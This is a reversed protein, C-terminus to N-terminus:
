YEGVKLRPNAVAVALSGHRAVAWQEWEQRRATAAERARLLHPINASSWVGAGARRGGEELRERMYSICDEDRSYDPLGDDVVEKKKVVEEAVDEAEITEIDEENSLFTLYEAVASSWERDEEAALRRKDARQVQSLKGLVHGPGPSPTAPGLLRQFEAVVLSRLSSRTSTSAGRRAGAVQWRDRAAARARRLLEVRARSWFLRPNTSVLRPRPGHKTRPTHGRSVHRVRRWWRGVRAFTLTDEERRRPVTRWQRTDPSQEPGPALQLKTWVECLDAQWMVEDWNHQEGSPCLFQSLSVFQRASLQLAPAPSTWTRWSTLAHRDHTDLHDQLGALLELTLSPAPLCPGPRSVVKCQLPQQHGALVLTQTM